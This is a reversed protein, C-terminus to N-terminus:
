DIILYLIFMIGGKRKRKVIKRQKKEVHKFQTRFVSILNQKQALIANRYSMIYQM